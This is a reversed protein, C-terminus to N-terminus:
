KEVSSVPPDHVFSKLSEAMFHENTQKKSEKNTSMTIM